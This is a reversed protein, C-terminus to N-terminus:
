EHLQLILSVTLFYNWGKFYTRRPEGFPSQLSYLQINSLLCTFLSSVDKGDQEAKAPIQVEAFYEFSTKFKKSDIATFAKLSQL